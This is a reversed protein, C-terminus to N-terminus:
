LKLTLPLPAHSAPDNVIAKFAPDDWLSFLEMRAGLDYVLMGPRGRRKGLEDLAAAREGLLAHVEIVRNRMLEAMYKNGNKRALQSAEALAAMAPARQGLTALMVAKNYLAGESPAKQLDAELTRLATRAAAQAQTRDGAAAWALARQTEIDGRGSLGNAGGPELGLLRQVEAFDRRAAAREADTERIRATKAEAGKGLSARWKDYGDWSGTASFESRYYNARLDLNEPHAEMLQLRLTQARPFNRLRLYTLALLDMAGAHRPDVGLAVELTAAAESANFLEAHVEAAGYLADVNHPTAKLVQMYAQLARAHDHMAHLRFAGEAIKVQPDEPALALAQSMARQAQGKGDGEPGVGLRAALARDQALRAWALAFKPDLGVAQSLLAIRQPLSSPLQSPGGPRNALDQHRLLLDYAELSASPMRVLRQAERPTLAVKLAAAISSAIESQVVFIDKLERDYKGTWLHKDSRVDILEATVHLRNGERRVSGEVLSGVGLEKGLERVNKGSGRFDMVSARSVVKLEGLLSLQALIEEHMGDAFYGADKDAGKDAFPLVAIAKDGVVGADAAGRRGPILADKYTWLAEAALLALVLSVAGVVLRRTTFAAKRVHVVTPAAKVVGQPAVSWVPIPEGINKFTQPGLFQAKMPVKAKVTDYVIQSICVGGHPARPELRAAINVGDGAVHGGEVRYVDGIHIGIRHQLGQGKPLVENRAGFEAQIDLAFTVADVAGGFCLMMGDGMTNLVEGGHQVCAERMRTFDAHVAAITATEDRQMRASYGVVDTFVVAALRPRELPKGPAPESLDEDSDGHSM